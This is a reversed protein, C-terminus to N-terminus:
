ATNISNHGEYLNYIDKWSNFRPIRDNVTRNHAHSILVSTLGYDLGAEANELKDEVWLLKTDRYTELVKDKDEGTDLFIFKEFLSEGFISKLNEIRLQQATPEKTQSTIVHFMCGFKKHLLPVYYAADRFPSLYRMASSENFLRIWKKTEQKTLGLGKSLDYDEDTYPHATYGHRSMWLKFGHLWDLLVGDCDTLIIKSTM